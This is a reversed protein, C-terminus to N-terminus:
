TQSLHNTSRRAAKNQENNVQSYRQFTHLQLWEKRLDVPDTYDTTLLCGLWEDELNHDFHFSSVSDKKKVYKGYKQCQKTVPSQHRGQGGPNASARSKGRANWSNSRSSESDTNPFEGSMGVRELTDGAAFETWLVSTSGARSVIEGKEMDIELGVDALSEAYQSGRSIEAMAKRRLRAHNRYWSTLLICIVCIVPISPAAITVMMWKTASPQLPHQSQFMVHKIAEIQHYIPYHLNVSIETIQLQSFVEIATDTDIVLEYEQMQFYIEVLKGRRSVRLIKAEIGETDAFHVAHADINQELVFGITERKRRRNNTSGAKRLNLLNRGEVYSYVLGNKIEKIFDNGKINISKKVKCKVILEDHGSSGPPM